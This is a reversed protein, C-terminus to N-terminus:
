GRGLMARLRLRAKHVQSKSTGEAIGLMDAVERHELGEVDHLVFATRCGEPLRALARELDMKAVTREALKRSGSDALGPENDLAGTLQGGTGRPQAPPGPV